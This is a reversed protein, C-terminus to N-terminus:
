IYPEKASFSTYLYPMRQTKAVRYKMTDNESDERVTSFDTTFHSILLLTLNHLLVPVEDQYADMLYRVTDDKSGAWVTTFDTTFHSIPLLASIRISTHTHICTYIYTYMYIYMYIYM